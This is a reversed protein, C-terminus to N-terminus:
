TFIYDVLSYHHELLVLCNNTYPLSLRFRSSDLHFYTPLVLPSAPADRRAPGPSASCSARSLPSSRPWGAPSRSSACLSPAARRWRCTGPVIAVPPNTSNCSCCSDPDPPVPPLLASWNWIGLKFPDSRRYSCPGFTDIRWQALRSITEVRSDPGCAGGPGGGSMAPCSCCGSWDLTHLIQRCLRPTVEV